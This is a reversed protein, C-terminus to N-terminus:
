NWFLATFRGTKPSFSVELHHLEGGGGIAFYDGSAFSCTIERTSGGLEAIRHQNSDTFQHKEDVDMHYERTFAYFSAESSIGSVICSFRKGHERLVFSIPGVPALAHLEAAFRPLENLSQVTGRSIRPSISLYVGVTLACISV